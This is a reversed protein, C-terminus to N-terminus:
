VGKYSQITRIVAEKLNHKQMYGLAKLKTIDIRIKKPKVSSYEQRKAIQHTVNCNRGPENEAVIKAFSLITSNEEAAVNYAEGSNGLLLIRLYARTTDVVYLMPREASGDSNLVIDDGRLANGIFEVFVRGDDLPMKPAFTYGIRAIKVPVNYQLFYARCFSEAASKGISYCSRDSLSSLTSLRGVYSEDITNPGTDSFRTGYIACSSFYLMGSVQKERALALINRTGLIHGEIAGVPDKDYFKPRAEGAAHIIYDIKGEYTFPMTIDQTVITLYVDDAYEKFRMQAKEKNRVLALIHINMKRKQNLYLFTEVVYSPLIGNAGTVLITKHSFMDWPLDESIIEALDEEVIHNM